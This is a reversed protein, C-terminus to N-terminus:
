SQEAEILKANAAAPIMEAGITEPSSACHPSGPGPLHIVTKAFPPWVNMNTAPNRNSVPPRLAVPERQCALERAVAPDDHPM